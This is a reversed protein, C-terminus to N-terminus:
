TGDPNKWVFDRHRLEKKAKKQPPPDDGEEDDEGEEEDNDSKDDDSDAGVSEMGGALRLTLQVTSGSTVREDPALQSRAFFLRQMGPPVGEREFVMAKLAAVSASPELEVAITRGSLTTV